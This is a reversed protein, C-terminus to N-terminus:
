TAAGTVERFRGITQRHTHKFLALKSRRISPRCKRHGLDNNDAFLLAFRQDNLREESKENGIKNSISEFQCSL